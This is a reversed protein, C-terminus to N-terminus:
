FRADWRTPLTRFRIAQRTSAGCSNNNKGRTARALAPASSEDDIVGRVGFVVRILRLVIQRTEIGCEAELEYISCCSAPRM